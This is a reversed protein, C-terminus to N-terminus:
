ETKFFETSQDLINVKGIGGAKKLEFNWKRILYVSPCVLLELLFSAPIGGVMPMRMLKTGSTRLLNLSGPRKAKLLRPEM